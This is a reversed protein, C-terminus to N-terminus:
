TYIYLGSCICTNVRPIFFPYPCNRCLNLDTDPCIAGCAPCHWWKQAECSYSHINLPSNM